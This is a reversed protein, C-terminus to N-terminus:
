EETGGALIISQYCTGIAQRAFQLKAQAKMKYEAFTQDITRIKEYASQCNKDLMENQSALRDVEQRLAEIYRTKEVDSMGKISSTHLEAVDRIVQKKAKKATPLTIVEPVTLVAESAVAEEISVETRAKAKAM